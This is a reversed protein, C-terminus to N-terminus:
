GCWQPFALRRKAVGISEFFSMATLQCRSLLSGLRTKIVGWQSSLVGTRGCKIVQVDFLDETAPEETSHSAHM